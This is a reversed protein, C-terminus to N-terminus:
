AVDFHFTTGDEAKLELVEGVAGVIRVAGHRTPTYYTGGGGPPPAGFVTGDQRILLMGQSRDKLLRGAYVVTNVSEGKQYWRNRIDGAGPVQGSEVIIGSGAPFWEAASSWTATPHATELPKTCQPCSLQSQALTFEATEKADMTQKAQQEQALWTATGPGPTPIQNPPQADGNGAALYIGGAAAALSV